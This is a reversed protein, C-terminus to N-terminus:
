FCEKTMLPHGNRFKYEKLDDLIRDEIQMGWEVLGLGAGIGDIGHYDSGGTILLKYKKAVQTFYDIKPRTEEVTKFPSIAEIGDIGWNKLVEITTTDGVAIDFCPHALIAVGGAQHILDIAEKPEFGAKEVYCAQGRIMFKQIFDSITPTKGFDALIKEKNELNDLCTRAVHPMGITGTALSLLYKWDSKYGLGLLLQLMKKARKIRENQFFDLARTLIKDQYDIFYGLIHFEKRDKELWYCSLEVGPIIELHYKEGSKIAPLIGKVQDHDTIAMASLGVEKAKKVLQESSLVGDSASTHTHLDIM